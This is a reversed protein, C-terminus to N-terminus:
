GRERGRAGGGREGGNLARLTLNRSSACPPCFSGNFLSVFDVLVCVDHFQRLFFGLHAPFRLCIGSAPQLSVFVNLPM